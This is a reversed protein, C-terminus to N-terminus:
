PSVSNEKIAPVSEVKLINGDMIEVVKIQTGTRLVEGQTIADLERVRGEVKLHVKGVGSGEAPITLYVEGPKDLANYLNLTGSQELQAFKFIMYAVVFMATLGAVSALIVAVWINLQNNLSLM